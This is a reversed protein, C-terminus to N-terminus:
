KIQTWYVTMQSQYILLTITQLIEIQHSIKLHVVVVVMLQLQVIQIVQPNPPIFGRKNAELQLAALLVPLSESSQKGTEQIPSGM